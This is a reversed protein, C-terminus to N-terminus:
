GIVDCSTLKFDISINDVYRHKRRYPSKKKNELSLETHM